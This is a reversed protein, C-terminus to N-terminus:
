ETICDMIESGGKIMRHVLRDSESSPSWCRSSLKWNTRGQIIELVVDFRAGHGLGTVVHKLRNHIRDLWVFTAIIHDDRKMRHIDGVFMTERERYACESH